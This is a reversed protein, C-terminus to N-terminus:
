FRVKLLDTIFTRFPRCLDAPRPAQGTLSLQEPSGVQASFNRIDGIPRLGRSIAGGLLMLASLGGMADTMNTATRFHNLQGAHPQSDTRADRKSRVNRHQVVPSTRSATCRETRAMGEWLGAFAMMRDDRPKFLWPQKQGKPGTFEFFGDCPVLCRHGRKFPEVFASKQMVTESQWNFLTLGTKVDKAWYPVGWRMPVAHRQGDKGVAVVRETDTPRVVWRPPDNPLEPFRFAAQLNRPERHRTFFNCL